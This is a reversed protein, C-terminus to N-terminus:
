FAGIVIRSSEIKSPVSVMTSKPVVCGSNDADKIGPSFV